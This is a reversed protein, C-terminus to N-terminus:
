KRDRGRRGRGRVAHRRRARSKYDCAFPDLLFGLGPKDCAAVARKNAVAVKAAFATAEAKNASTFGLESKMVIQPYLGATGFKAISLAPQAIM